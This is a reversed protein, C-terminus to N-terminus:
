MTIVRKKNQEYVFDKMVKMRKIVESKIWENGSHVEELNLTKDYAHDLISKSKGGSRMYEAFRAKSDIKEVLEQDNTVIPTENVIFMPNGIKTGYAIMRDVGIQGIAEIMDVEHCLAMHEEGAPPHVNGNKSTSVTDIMREVEEIFSIDFADQNSLLMFCNSKTQDMKFSIKRDDVDHLLAAIIKILLQRDGLRICLHLDSLLAMQMNQMVALSHVLGHDHGVIGQKELDIYFKVVNEMLWEPIRPLFSSDHVSFVPVHENKMVFTNQNEDRFYHLLRTRQSDGSHRVTQDCVHKDVVKDSKKEGLSSETKELCSHINCPGGRGIIHEINSGLGGKQYYVHTAITRFVLSISTGNFLKECETKFRDLRKDSRISHLHLANTESDLLFVDGHNLLFKEKYRKPGVDGGASVSGPKAEVIMERSAGLRFIVIFTNPEQDMTKDAHPTIGARGDPYMQILAHDLKQNIAKLEPLNELENKLWEVSSTFPLVHPLVDVPHRFLPYRNWKETVQERLGQTCALRPITGGRQYMKQWHIEDNGLMKYFLEDAIDRNIVQSRVFSTKLMGVPKTGNYKDNETATTCLISSTM